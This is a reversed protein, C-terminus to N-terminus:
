KRMGHCILIKSSEGNVWNQFETSNLFWSGTGKIRENRIADHYAAFNKPLLWDM